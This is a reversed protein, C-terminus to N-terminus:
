ARRMMKKYEYPIRLFIAIVLLVCSIIFGFSKNILTTLVIASLSFGLYRILGWEWFKLDTTIITELPDFSTQEIAWSLFMLLIGIGILSPFLTKVMDVVTELPDGVITEDGLLLPFSIAMIIFLVAMQVLNESKM